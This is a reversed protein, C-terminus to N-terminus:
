KVGGWAMGTIKASAAAVNTNRCTRRMPRKKQRRSKGGIFVRAFQLDARDLQALVQGAYRCLLHVLDDDSVLRHAVGVAIIAFLSLSTASVSLLTEFYWCRCELYRCCFKCIGVYQCRRQVYRCRSAVVSLSLQLVSLSTACVSPPTAFVLLSAGFVSLLVELYRCRYQLYRCRCQMYWCRCGWYRCCFKCISDAISFIGVVVNYM